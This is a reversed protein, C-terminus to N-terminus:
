HPTGGDPDDMERWYIVDEDRPEWCLFAEKEGLLTPFNVLGREIDQLLIERNEFERLLERYEAHEAVWNNVRGGGLDDGADLMPATQRDYLELHERLTNLREIWGRLQPILERAEERSYHRTFQRSM